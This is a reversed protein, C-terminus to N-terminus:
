YSLDQGLYNMGDLKVTRIQLSPTGNPIGERGATRASEKNSNVQSNISLIFWSVKTSISPSLIKLSRISFGLTIEEFKTKSDM